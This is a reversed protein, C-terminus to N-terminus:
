GDELIERIASESDEIQQLIANLDDPSKLEATADGSGLAFLRELTDVREAPADKLAMRVADPLDEAGAELAILATQTALEAEPSADLANIAADFAAEFKENGLEARLRLAAIESTEANSAPGMAQAEELTRLAKDFDDLEIFAESLVLRQAIGDPSRSITAIAARADGTELYGGALEVALAADNLDDARLLGQAIGPLGEGALSRILSRRLSPQDLATEFRSPDDLYILALPRATEDFAPTSILDALFAPHDEPALLGLDVADSLFAITEETSAQRNFLRAELEFAQRGIESGLNSRALEGLDLRLGAHSQDLVDDSRLAQRAQILLAQVATEPDSGLAEALHREASAADDQWMALRYSLLHTGGLTQGFGSASRRAMAELRRVTEWEGREAATLGLEAAVIQRPLLPLEELAAGSSIESKLAAEQQGARSQAYARWLAQLGICEDKALSGEVEALGGSLADAVDLLFFSLASGPSYESVVSRAEVVMGVSLYKKALELGSHPDTSDFEGVLAKRSEGISRALEDGPMLDPLALDERSFCRAPPRASPQDSAHDPRETGGPNESAAIGADSEPFNFHAIMGPDDSSAAPTGDAMATGGPEAVDAPVHEAAAGEPAAAPVDAIQGDALEPKEPPVRIGPGSPEVPADGADEPKLDVIGADAARLLQQMLRKRVEEADLTSTASVEVEAPNSDPITGQVLKPVPLPARGPARAGADLGSLGVVMLGSVAYGILHRRSPFVGASRGTGYRNRSLESRM